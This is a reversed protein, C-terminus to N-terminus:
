SVTTWWARWHNRLLQLHGGKYMRRYIHRAVSSIGLIVRQAALTLFQLLYCRIGGNHMIINSWYFFYPSVFFFQLPKTAELFVQPGVMFANSLIKYPVGTPIM